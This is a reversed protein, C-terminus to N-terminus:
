GLCDENFYFDETNTNSIELTNNRSNTFVDISIGGRRSENAYSCQKIDIYSSPDNELTCAINLDLGMNPDLKELINKLEGVTRINEKKM